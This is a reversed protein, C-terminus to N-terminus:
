MELREDTDIDNNGRPLNQNLFPFNYNYFDKSSRTFKAIPIFNTKDPVRDDEAKNRALASTMQFDHVKLDARLEEIASQTKGDAIEGNYKEIGLSILLNLTQNMSRKSEEAINLVRRHQFPDVRLLINGKLERSAIPKPLEKGEKELEGIVFELLTLMEDTAEERTDGVASLSPFESCVSIFSEDDDSWFSRISYKDAVNM